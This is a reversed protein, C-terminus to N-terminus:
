GSVANTCRENAALHTRVSSESVSASVPDENTSVANTNWNRTLARSLVVWCVSHGGCADRVKARKAGQYRQRVDPVMNTM